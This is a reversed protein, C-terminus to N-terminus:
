KRSFGALYMCFYDQADRMSAANGNFGNMVIYFMLIENDKDIVYGCLASVGNLTGTKGYVNGEAETGTMRTKLTGDKGAISLSNLFYDFIFRDDYIFKLLKMYLEANVKNFRTLGSGELIEYSYRDVGLGTLFTGIVEQGDELTGPNSKYKAGLMKFITIASHNDSEKNMYALVDFISHSVQTVEKAGKPTSGMIVAGMVSVGGLTLNGSLASAASTAPNYAGQNKDFALANVYPWYSPGTDGKYYGSLNYYNNDFFSEDAVINGTIERVGRKIIENALYQMDNSNLDPDGYGKLYLNGNVVGDTIDNDDTYVKTQISYNVGLKSFACASTILKTISAPIMAEEPNLEYLTKSYDAHVVKCSIRIGSNYIPLCISDLNAQLEAIKEEPFKAQSFAAQFVFLLFLLFKIKTKM